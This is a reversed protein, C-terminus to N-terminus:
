KSILPIRVGDKSFLVIQQWSYIMVGLQQGIAFESQVRVAVGDRANDCKVYVFKDFGTDENFVVTAPISNQTGANVLIIQEPRLGVTVWEHLMDPRMLTAAMEWPIELQCGASVLMVINNVFELRFDFFNMRPNGIFSGVFVNEPAGYINAPTDVQQLIGDKMIAIRTAMTMAEIQDHTVYVFTTNLAAHLQKLEGRLQVRLAADINSLPEDFLFVKPRRVIARGLAVRQREGGSLAAPKRKLLPTLGLMEATEGVRQAIQAKPVYRMKLGFAMNDFISMHPYLAYDQFVMAMDRDKPPVHNIVQGDLMIEGSTPEILGAIMNLTTTKGCGSPGVLVMFEGSGIFLNLSTVAETKAYTKCLNRLLIEAM